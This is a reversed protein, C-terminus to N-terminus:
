ALMIVFVILSKSCRMYIYLLSLRQSSNAREEPEMQQCVVQLVEYAEEVFSSAVDTQVM